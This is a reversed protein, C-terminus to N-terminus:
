GEAPLSAAIDLVPLFSQPEQAGTLAYRKDFVYCPVAQIGLRRALADAMQVPSIDVSSALLAAAEARDIGQQGAIEILVEARGIDLGDNFYAHFLADIMPEMPRGLRGALRVLRHADLTNPTRAIHDLRLDLGDQAAAQSILGYIQAAREAGGFKTALYTQRDIGARPMDPNLQFPSWNLRVSVLPRAALAQKFRHKGILCWPCVLDYYIDVQM